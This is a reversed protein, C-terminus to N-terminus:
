RPSRGKNLGRGLARSFLKLGNWEPPLHSATVMLAGRAESDPVLLAELMAPTVLGVDVGRAGRAAAGIAASSLRPDRGVVIAGDESGLWRRFAAEIYRM